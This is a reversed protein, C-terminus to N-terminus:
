PDLLARLHLDDVPGARSEAAALDPNGLVAGVAAAEEPGLEVSPSAVVHADGFDGPGLQLGGREAGDCTTAIQEM